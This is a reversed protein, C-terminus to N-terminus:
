EYGVMDADFVVNRKLIVHAKVLSLLATISCFIETPKSYVVMKNETKDDRSSCDDKAVNCEETKCDIRHKEVFDARFCFAIVVDDQGVHFTNTNEHTEQATSPNKTEEIKNDITQHESIDECYEVLEVTNSDKYELTKEVWGNVRICFM